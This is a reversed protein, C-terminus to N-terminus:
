NQFLRGRSEYYLFSAQNKNELVDKPILYFLGNRYFLDLIDNFYYASDYFIKYEPDQIKYKKIIKVVFEFSERVHERSKM